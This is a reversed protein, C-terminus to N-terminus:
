PGETPAGKYGALRCAYVMRAEDRVLKVRLPPFATVDGFSRTVSEPCPRLSVFLIPESTGPTFPRTMEYHNHPEGGQTWIYVPTEVDRLYYLLEAAMDRTHVLLAGYREGALKSRVAGATGHWGLSSRLFKLEEFAPWTRAFAPATAIM